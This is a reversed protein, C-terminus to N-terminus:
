SSMKTQVKSPVVTTARSLREAGASASEDAEVSTVSSAESDKASDNTSSPASNSDSNHRTDGSHSSSAVTTVGSGEDGSSGESKVSLSKARKNLSATKHGDVPKRKEGTAAKAAATLASWGDSSNVPSALSGSHGDSGGERTAKVQTSMSFTNHPYYHEILARLKLNEADLVGIVNIMEEVFIKKRDRTRKAHMRNRERRIQDLEDSTCKNRDKSLLAYDIGDDPFKGNMNKLANEPLDGEECIEADISMSRIHKAKHSPVMAATEKLIRKGDPIEDNGRKLIREVDPNHEEENEGVDSMVLLINATKRDNIIQKLRQQELKLEDARLQLTQMQLKKRQRTKRAHMRNRERSRQLREEPSRLSGPTDGASSDLGGQTDSENDSYDLKLSSRMQSTRHNIDVRSSQMAFLANTASDEM